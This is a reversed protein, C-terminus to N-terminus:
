REVCGGSPSGASGSLQAAEFGEILLLPSDAVAM